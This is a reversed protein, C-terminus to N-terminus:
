FVIPNDTREAWSEANPGIWQHINRKVTNAIGFTAAAGRDGYKDVHDRRTLERCLMEGYERSVHSVVVSRDIERGIALFGGDYHKTIAAVYFRGPVNTRITKYHTVNMKM